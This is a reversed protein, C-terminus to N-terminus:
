VLFGQGSCQYKDTSALLIFNKLNNRQWGKWFGKGTSVTCQARRTKSINSYLRVHALPCAGKRGYGTCYYLYGLCCHHHFSAASTNSVPFLFLLLLSALLNTLSWSPIPLAALETIHSHLRLMTQPKWQVQSSKALGVLCPPIHTQPFPSAAISERAWSPRRLLQLWRVMSMM